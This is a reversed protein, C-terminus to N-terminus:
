IGSVGVSGAADGSVHIGGTDAPILRHRPTMSTIRMRRRRMPSPQFGAPARHGTGFVSCGGAGGIDLIHAQAIKAAASGSGALVLGLTDLIHIKARDIVPSPIEDFGNAVTGAIAATVEGTM